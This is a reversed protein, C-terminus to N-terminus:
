SGPPRNMRDRMRVISAAAAAWLAASFIAFLPSAALIGRASMFVMAVFFVVLFTKWPRSLGRWFEVPDRM